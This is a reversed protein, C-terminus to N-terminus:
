VKSEIFPDAFIDQMSAGALFAKKQLAKVM